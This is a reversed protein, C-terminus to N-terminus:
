RNWLCFLVMDWQRIREGEQVENGTIYLLFFFLFLYRLGLKNWLLTRIIYILIQFEATFFVLNKENNLRRHENVNNSSENPVFTFLSSTAIILYHFSSIVPQSSSSDADSKKKRPRGRTKREVNPAELNSTSLQLFLFISRM